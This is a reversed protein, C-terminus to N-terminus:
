RCFPCAEFEYLQLPLAPQELRTRAYDGTNTGFPLRAISALGSTTTELWRPRPAAADGSSVLRLLPCFVSLLSGSSSAKSSDQDKKDASQVGSMTAARRNNAQRIPACRLGEQRRVSKFAHRCHGVPPMVGVVASSHTGSNKNISCTMVMGSAMRESFPGQVKSNSQRRSFLPSNSDEVWLSTRRQRV